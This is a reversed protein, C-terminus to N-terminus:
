WIQEIMLKVEKEVRPDHDNQFSLALSLKDVYKNDIPIPEYKWIEVCYKGEYPNAGIFGDKQQARWQTAPIAITQMEEPNLASFHSLASIGAQKYQEANVVEDCYLRERVPNILYPQAAEYLAHKDDDFMIHKRKDKDLEIRCLNLSELLRMALTISVYQYPSAATINEATQNNQMHGQLYALVLWQAAPSLLEGQIVKTDRTLILLNPLFVYKGSVIFYVDQDILRNRDTYDLDSLLFVVPMDKIVLAMRRAILGLHRPSFHIGEKPELVLINRDKYWLSYFDFSTRVEVWVHRKREADFDSLLYEKGAIEVSKM